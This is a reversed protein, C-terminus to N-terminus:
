SDSRGHLFERLTMNQETGSDLDRVVLTGATVEAPGVMIAHRVGAAAAAKLTKGVGSLKYPFQTSKGARRLEAVIKMAAVRTSEDVPIVFADVRPMSDLALDREKLLEGQVVDGMGFGLAPIDIGALASFLRDYRGGGCLARLEGRRDFLEFVIGTYYALGRVIRMDFLVFDRFGLADLARFYEDLRDLAANMERNASFRSRLQELSLATLGLVEEARSSSLGLEQLRQLSTARPERDLKDIVNFAVALKEESVGFELLAHQLLRRDSVRAVVDDATLGLERQVDIAACLLDVDAYGSDEGIIDMNLQFHERLRGRQQKEYRFLQPTSYWRIPRPMEKIRAGLMRVLTPTMEPRLAVERGGKDTFNFLQNVIEPGSKEIYLELPELPPGDYEQFGYREAVTRWAKEIHRRQAMQEPYFDRFGPLASPKTV